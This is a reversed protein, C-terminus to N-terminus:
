EAEIVIVTANPDSAVTIAVDDTSSVTGDSVTLRFLYTNGSALGTVTTTATTKDYYSRIAYM